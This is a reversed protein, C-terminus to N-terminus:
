LHNDEFHKILIDLSKELSNTGYNLIRLDPKVPFDPKIDVGVVEKIEGKLARSYLNKQDREVLKEIPVDLFVEVYNKIENRNYNQIEKFMAIVSVIVVFGQDSLMKSLHSYVRAIELRGKRSYDKDLKFVKRINDGDIIIPKINKEKLYDTFQRAITTKGSGALGCIWYVIGKDM